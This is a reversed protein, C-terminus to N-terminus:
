NVTQIFLLSPYLMGTIYSGDYIVWTLYAHRQGYKIVSSEFLVKDDFGIESKDDDSSISDSSLSNRSVSNRHSSIGHDYINTVIDNNDTYPTGHSTSMVADM